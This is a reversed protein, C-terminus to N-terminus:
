LMIGLFYCLLRLIGKLVRLGSRFCTELSNKIKILKNIFKDYSMSQHFIWMFMKNSKDFRAMLHYKLAVVWKLFKIWFTGTTMCWFQIICIWLFLNSSKWPYSWTWRQNNAPFSFFLLFINAGKIHILWSLLSLTLKSWTM